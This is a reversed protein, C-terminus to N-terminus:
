ARSERSTVLLRGTNRCHPVVKPRSKTSLLFRHNRLGELQSGTTWHTPSWFSVSHSWLSSQSTIMLKRSSHETNFTGGGPRCRCSWRDKWQGGATTITITITIASYYCLQKNIRDTRDINSGRELGTYSHIVANLFSWRSSDNHCILPQRRFVKCM